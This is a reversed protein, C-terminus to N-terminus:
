KGGVSYLFKESAVILAGNAPVVTSFLPGDFASTGLVKKEKSAALCLLNGTENGIYLNTGAVVSSGWIRGETDHKWHQEGTDLNLCFLYGAYDSIFLLKQEPLIAPTSLSRGIKTFQWVRGTETIDGTKSADVCTLAGNGDGNEPNQGTCVYVRGDLIVPTAVIESPGDTAGYKKARYAKPNADFRWIEKLIPTGDPGPVPNPDFAYCWGDGGGFIVMERDGVKGYAPSSWNSHLTRESIGSKEVGLLKGTKADLCILTPAHPAPVHNTWDRSNSTCVFLKDGVLLPSSATQYHPYVGLENYMDFHWVIDGDTASPAPLQPKGAKPADGIYGAVYEAER